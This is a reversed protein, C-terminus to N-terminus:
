INKIDSDSCIIQAGENILLNCGSYFKDDYCGPFCYITKNLELAENVSILTGSRRKAQVVILSDGLAAILRNRWPFHYALPPTKQPYESILLAQNRMLNFLEDNEHPYIIDLGCGIVGVTKRGNSLAQQHAIGDIGKAMGSVIGYHPNLHQMLAIVNEEGREDCIRSGVIGVMVNNLLTIDGEYYLVFPPYKLQRLTDPYINDRITLYSGSYTIEQYKENNEVAKKIKFYDGNYKVSYALLKKRM